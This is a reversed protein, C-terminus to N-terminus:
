KWDFLHDEARVSKTRASETWTVESMVKLEVSSVKTISINRVFFTESSGISSYGYVGTTTNLYLRADDDRSMLGDITDYQVRGINTSGDAGESLGVNFARVPSALWNEDRIARTVEIGEQALM